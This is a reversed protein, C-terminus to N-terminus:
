GAVAGRPPHGRSLHGGGPIERAHGAGTPRPRAEGVRSVEHVGVSSSHVDRLARTYGRTHGTGGSANGFPVFGEYGENTGEAHRAGDRSAVDWSEPMM